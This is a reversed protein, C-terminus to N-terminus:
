PRSRDGLNDSAPFLGLIYGKLDVLRRFKPAADTGYVILPVLSEDRHLSGHGGGGIHAPSSQASLEYGPLSTVVLYNGPHSHLASYLRQLADPYEGFRIRRGKATIDLAEPDGQWHWTQGYPDTWGGNKKFKLEGSLGNRKVRIWDDEKWAVIGIRPEAHLLEALEELSPGSQLSYVYAATENVALAVQTSETATKGPPLISYGRLTETLDVVPRSDANGIKSMGSDGAILITARKKADKESGFSQLLKRLQGDLRRVGELDSPGKKHLRQDLDPLYVYLFDPLRDNEVLYRVTEIAFEDNFGLKGAIGDPTEKMGELPDSLSGYTFLDPGKVRIERGIPPRLAHPTAGRYVLGNVSGSKLGRAALEEYLTRIEPNLHKGNLNSLLDELVQGTGTRLVEMPGTGYNVVRKDESSYWALGPIRHRDPYSGTVITSDIAVSMTPFASVVDKYYRGNEILYKFTPLQNGRIGQDISQQMLSDAVLLLVKKAGAPRESRARLIEQGKPEDARGTCGAIGAALVIAVAIRVARKM